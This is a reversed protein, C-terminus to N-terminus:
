GAIDTDEKKKLVFVRFRIDKREQSYGIVFQLWGGVWHCTDMVWHFVLVM